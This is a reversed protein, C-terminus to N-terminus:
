RPNSNRIVINLLSWCSCLLSKGCFIAQTSETLALSPTGYNTDTSVGVIADIYESVWAAYAMIFFQRRGERFQASFYLYRIMEQLPGNSVRDKSNKTSSSDLERFLVRGDDNLGEFLGEANPEEKRSSGLKRGSLTSQDNKLYFQKQAIGLLFGYLSITALQQCPILITHMFFELNNVKNDPTLKASLTDMKERLYPFYYLLTILDTLALMLLPNGEQFKSKTRKVANKGDKLIDQVVKSINWLNRGDFTIDGMSEYVRATPMVVDLNTPTSQKRGDDTVGQDPSEDGNQEEDNRKCKKTTKKTSKVYDPHRVVLSLYTAKLNENWKIDTQLCRPDTASDPKVMDNYLKEFLDAISKNNAKRTTLSTIFSMFNDETLFTDKTADSTIFSQLQTLFTGTLTGKSENQYWASIRQLLETPFQTPQHVVVKCQVRNYFNSTTQLRQTTIEYPFPFSDSNVM